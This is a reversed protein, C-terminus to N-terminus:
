RVYYVIVAVIIIILIVFVFRWVPRRVDMHLSLNAQQHVESRPPLNLVDVEIMEEETIKEKKVESEQNNLELFLQQLKTAQDDKQEESM